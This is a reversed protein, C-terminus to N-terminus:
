FAVSVGVSIQLLDTNSNNWNFSTQVPGDQPNSFEIDGEKLYQAVGGWLYRGNIYFFLQGSKDEESFTKLLINLGAGIGYSLATDSANKSSSIECDDHDTDPDDSCGENYLRTNTQLNKFGLLGEFHPKIKSDFPQLRFLLHGHFISNNTEEVITVLDSFYNFPIDRRSSDYVSGGLNIGFGLYSVPYYFINLDLGFGTTVGSDYFEGKPLQAILGVSGDFKQSWCVSFIFFVLAFRM